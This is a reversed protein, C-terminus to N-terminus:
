SFETLILLDGPYCFVFGDSASGNFNTCSEVNFPLTPYRLSGRFINVQAGIVIIAVTVLSVISGWLAGTTNFNPCLMGMTFLALLTGYTSGCFAISISFMGGLKEVIFVLVLCVCGISFVLIKMVNSAQRETANPFHPKIFDEYATGSLSNLCSSMTSLAASMAGVIFLGPLGPISRAVDMVYYPFMQDYKEVVGDYVPDCYAYKSIILM